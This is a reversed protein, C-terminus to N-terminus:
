KDKRRPRPKVVDAEGSAPSDRWGQNKPVAGIDAFLRSEVAGDEGARYRWCPHQEGAMNVFRPIFSQPPM